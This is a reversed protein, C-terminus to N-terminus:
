PAKAVARAPRHATCDSQSASQRVLQRDPESVGEWMVTDGGRGSPELDECM